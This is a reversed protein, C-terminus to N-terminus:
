VLSLVELLLSYLYVFGSAMISIAGVKVVRHLTSKTLFLLVGFSMFTTMLIATFVLEVMSTFSEEMFYPIIVKLASSLFFYVCVYVVLSLAVYVAVGLQNVAKTTKKVHTSKKKM